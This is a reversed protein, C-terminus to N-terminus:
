RAPRGPALTKEEVLDRLEPTGHSVLQQKSQPTEWIKELAGRFATADELSDFELDIMVHNPDEVARTMRYSRVRQEGRFRDFKDFVAKWSAFDRVTNEVHLTTM